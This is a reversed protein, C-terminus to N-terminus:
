TKVNMLHSIPRKCQETKREMLRHGRLNRKGMRAGDYLLFVSSQSGLVRTSKGAIFREAKDVLDVLNLWPATAPILIAHTVQTIITSTM